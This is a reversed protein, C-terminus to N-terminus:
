LPLVWAPMIIMFYAFPICRAGTGEAV